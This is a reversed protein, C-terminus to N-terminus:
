TCYCCSKCCMGACAPAAWAPRDPSTGCSVCTPRRWSSLCSWDKQNGACLPWNIISAPNHTPSPLCHQSCSIPLLQYSRTYTLIEHNLWRGVSHHHYDKSCQFFLSVRRLTKILVVRLSIWEDFSITLLYTSEFTMKKKKVNGESAIM